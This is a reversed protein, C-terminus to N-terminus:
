NAIKNAIVPVFTKDPVVVGQMLIDGERAAVWHHGKMPPVVIVSGAPLRKEKAPDVVDGDGWFVPGSIVTFVRYDKEVGHPPLINDKPIKLFVTKPKGTEDMVVPAIKAVDHVTKYTFDDPTFTYTEAMAASHLGLMLLASLVIKKM